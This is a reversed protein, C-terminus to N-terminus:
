EPYRRQRLVEGDHGPLVYASLREIKLLTEFYVALDVHIGSPIHKLYPSGKWNEFLPVTDQAILYPGKETDVLVGQSGPTHGPLSVLTVGPVIECDERIVRMRDFVKMWPPLLGPIGVEYAIRHVPLPAVAYRIEEERVFFTANSLGELNYCHDWHLHSFIVIEVECLDVGLAGLATELNQSSGKDLSLHHYRMAAEPDCPGTDVLIKKPAGEIYFALCPSRFKVGENM